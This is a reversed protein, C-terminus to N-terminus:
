CRTLTANAVLLAEFERELAEDQASMVTGPLRDTWEHM